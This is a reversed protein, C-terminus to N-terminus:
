ALVDLGLQTEIAALIRAERRSQERRVATRDNAARVARDSVGLLRAVDGARVGLSTVAVYCARRRAERRTQSRLRLHYGPPQRAIMLASPALGHARASAVVAIRILTQADSM